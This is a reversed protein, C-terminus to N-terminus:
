SHLFHQSAEHVELTGCCKCAVWTGTHGIVTLWEARPGQPWSVKREAQLLRHEKEDSRTKCPGGRGDISPELWSCEHVSKM